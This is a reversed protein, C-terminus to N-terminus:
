TVMKERLARDIGDDLSVVPTGLLERMLSPDGVRYRVGTPRDDRHWIEPAYGAALCIQTVLQNMTVGTGSCLNVPGDVDREIARMTLEIVDDVHIFDRVQEGDGWVEFPDARRRARGIFASFPYDMSQGPGYGSFPRLVTVRGGAARVWRALREGTFKVEGYSHDSRPAVDLDVMDERLRWTEGHDTAVTEQRHTPYIASSSWYIIRGPRTALAWEFMAADLLTDYTSVYAAHNEIGLRGGVYAACHVLLDVTTQRGLRFLDLADRPTGGTMTVTDVQRVTWGDRILRNVVHRGLFGSGGTVIAQM